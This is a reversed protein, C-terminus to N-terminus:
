ATTNSKLQNGKYNAILDDSMVNSHLYFNSRISLMNQGDAPVGAKGETLKPIWINFIM